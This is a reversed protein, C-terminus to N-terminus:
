WVMKGFRTKFGPNEDLLTEIKIDGMYAKDIGFGSKFLPMKYVLGKRTKIHVVYERFWHSGCPTEAHECYRECTYIKTITFFGLSYHFADKGIIPHYVRILRKRRIDSISM